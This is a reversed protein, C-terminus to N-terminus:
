RHQASSDAPTQRPPGEHSPDPEEPGMVEFSGRPLARGYRMAGSSRRWPQTHSEGVPYRAQRSTNTVPPRKQRPSEVDAFPGPGAAAASPGYTATRTPSARELSTGVQSLLVWLWMLCDPNPEIVHTVVGPVADLVRCSASTPTSSLRAGRCCRSNGDRRPGLPHARHRNGSPQAEARHPRRRAPRPRLKVCSRARSAVAVPKPRFESQGYPLM